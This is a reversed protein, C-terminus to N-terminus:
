VSLCPHLHSIDTLAKRGGKNKTDALIFLLLLCHHLPPSLDILNSNGTFPFCLEYPVDLEQLFACGAIWCAWCSKKGQLCSQMSSRNIVNAACSSSAADPPSRVSSSVMAPRNTRYLLWHAPYPGPVEEPVVYLWRCGQLGTRSDATHSSPRRLVLNAVPETLRPTSSRPILSM